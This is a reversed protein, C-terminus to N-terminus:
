HRRLFRPMEAAPDFAPDMEGDIEQLAEREAADDDDARAWDPL